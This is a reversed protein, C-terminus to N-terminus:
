LPAIPPSAARAQARRTASLAVALEIIKRRDAPDVINFFARMLLLGDIVDPDAQDQMGMTAVGIELVANFRSV